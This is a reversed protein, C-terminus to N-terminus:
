HLLADGLYAEYTSLYGVKFGRPHDKFETLSPPLSTSFAGTHM